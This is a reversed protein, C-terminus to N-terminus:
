SREVTLGGDEDRSLRVKKDAIREKMDADLQARREQTQAELQARDIDANYKMELERLKIAYEAAQQDRERDDALQIQVLARDALTQPPQLLM